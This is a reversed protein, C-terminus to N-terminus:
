GRFGQRCAHLPSSWEHLRGVMEAYSRQFFAAMRGVDRGAAVQVTIEPFTYRSSWVAAWGERFDNFHQQIRRSVLFADSELHIVKRFGHVQAYRAAFAFSRHWGPFDFVSTRGLHENHTYLVIPASTSWTRPHPCM